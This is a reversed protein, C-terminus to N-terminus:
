RYSIPTFLHYVSREFFWLNVVRGFCHIKRSQEVWGEQLRCAVDVAGVVFHMGFFDLTRDAHRDIAVGVPALQNKAAFGHQEGAFAEHREVLDFGAQTLGCGLTKGM